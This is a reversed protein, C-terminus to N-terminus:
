RSGGDAWGRSPLQLGAVCQSNEMLAMVQEGDLWERQLLEAAVVAIAPQHSRLQDAAQETMEGLVVQAQAEALGLADVLSAARLMDLSEPDVEEIGYATVIIPGALAVRVRGLLEQPRELLSRDYESCRCLPYDGLRVWELPVGNLVALVAHSAEEVAIAEALSAAM